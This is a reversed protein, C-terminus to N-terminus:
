VLVSSQFSLTRTHTHSVLETLELEGGSKGNTIRVIERFFVRM